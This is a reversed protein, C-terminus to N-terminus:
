KTLKNTAPVDVLVTAEAAGMKDIAESCLRRNPYALALVRGLARVTFLFGFPFFVHVKFNTHREELFHRLVVM